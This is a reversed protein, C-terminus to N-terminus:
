RHEHKLEHDYSEFACWWSKLCVFRWHFMKDPDMKRLYGFKVLLINESCVHCRKVVSKLATPELVNKFVTTSSNASDILRAGDNVVLVLKATSCYNAPLRHMNNQSSHPSPSHFRPGWRKV